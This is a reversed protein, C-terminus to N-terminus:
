IIDKFLLYSTSRGGESSKVLIGKKVLDLIDRYASDQSCKAMKAYKSSTLKGEIGDLLRNIIELQRQNLAEASFKQWFADKFLIDELLVHSNDIARALCNLFWELWLSIDMGGKQVRELVLYYEDREREIQSSLSYFRQSSRESRTLMMETLARAIRGNGDEFPHLTLFWFHSIAADILLSGKGEQNTWFLFNDFEKRLIKAPPAEFHVRERGIPGSIVQMPGDRDDRLEGLLIKRIGSQKTPFLCRHWRLLRESTLEELNEEVANLMIEVFGDVQQTSPVLGAINVGLKRAISSRVELSDLNEGEIKSSKEIEETLTKLYAERKLEFGLSEMRGLLRGQELNVRSLLGELAVVDWTFNPWDDCQWIYM